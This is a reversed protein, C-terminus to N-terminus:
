EKAWAGRITFELTGASPSEMYLKEATGFAIRVQIHQGLFRNVVDAGVMRDCPLSAYLELIQSTVVALVDDKCGLYFLQPSWGTPLPTKPVAGFTYDTAVFRAETPVGVPRPQATSGTNPLGTATETSFATAPLATGSPGKSCAASLLLLAASVLLIVANPHTVGIRHPVTPRV